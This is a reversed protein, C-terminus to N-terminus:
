QVEFRQGIGAKRDPRRFRAATSLKTHRLSCIRFGAMVVTLSLQTIRELATTAAGTHEAIKMGIQVQHGHRLRFGADCMPWAGKTRYVEIKPLRRLMNLM